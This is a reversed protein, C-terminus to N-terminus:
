ILMKRGTVQLNKFLNYIKFKTSLTLFCLYIHEMNMMM